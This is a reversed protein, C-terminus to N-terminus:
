SVFVTPEAAALLALLICPIFGAARQTTPDGEGEVRRPSTAMVLM